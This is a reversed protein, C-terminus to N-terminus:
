QQNFGLKFLAKADSQWNPMVKVHLGLFVRGKLKKEIEQRASTGVQKLREGKAGIIIAKQSEREVVVSAHIDFFPREEPTRRERESIEDIIVAISHPVEEFVDAIAAERILDALQNELEQDSTMDAPYFAPSEPAYKALLDLLLQVQDDTKASLPVIDDWSFGAQEALKSAAILQEPLQSKKAMDIMTIACIKKANKHSAIEQAIFLDGAGIAEVAPICLVIADVSDMSESVMSNLAGGLLTKPKHVGPTDVVVLQFDDRTVIGRIANRTTNPHHSTIVIKEGVLANVLTSKGTNPRGVIAVFAAKHSM